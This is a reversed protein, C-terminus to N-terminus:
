PEPKAINKLDYKRILRQLYAREIGARRAAQSVNGNHEKLLQRLFNVEFKRILNNKATKFPVDTSVDPPAEQDQPQARGLYLFARLDLPRRGSYCAFEVLNRLERVNGPWDHNGFAETTKDFDVM